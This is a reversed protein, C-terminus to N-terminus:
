SRRAQLDRQRKSSPPFGQQDVRMMVENRRLFQPTWSPRFFCAGSGVFSRIGPRGGTGQPAGSTQDGATNVDLLHQFKEEESGGTAEPIHEGAARTKTPRTKTQGSTKRTCLLHQEIFLPLSM